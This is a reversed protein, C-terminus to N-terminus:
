VHARGIESGSEDSQLEEVIEGEYDSYVEPQKEKLIVENYAEPEDFFIAETKQVRIQDAFDDPDSLYTEDMPCNERLANAKKALYVINWNYKHSQRALRAWVDSLSFRRSCNDAGDTAIALLVNRPRLDEPLKSLKVGLKDIVACLSDCLATAGAYGSDITNQVEMWTASNLNLDNATQRFTESFQYVDLLIQREFRHHFRALLENLSFHVSDRLASMSESVDLLVCIHLYDNGMVTGKVNFADREM